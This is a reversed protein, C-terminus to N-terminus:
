KAITRGKGTRRARPAPPPADAHIAGTLLSMLWTIAETADDGDLDWAGVLREYAPMSWVVDLLAAVRPAINKGTTTAPAVFADHSAMLSAALPAVNEALGHDLAASDAVHVKQMGAIRAAAEAVAGVNHGAVLGHVEGLKAAATVAALTADRVAGGEHEIYVLTKM